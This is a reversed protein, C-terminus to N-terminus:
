ASHGPKAQREKSCVDHGQTVVTDEKTEGLLLSTPMSERVLSREMRKEITSAILSEDPM